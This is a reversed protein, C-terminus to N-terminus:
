ESHYKSYIGETMKIGCMELPHFIGEGCFAFYFDSLPRASLQKDSILAAM